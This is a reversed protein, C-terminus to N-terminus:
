GNTEKKALEFVYKVLDIEAPFPKINLGKFYIESWKLYIEKADEDTLYSM